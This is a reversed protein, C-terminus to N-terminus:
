APAFNVCRAQRARNRCTLNGYATIMAYRADTVTSAGSTAHASATNETFGSNKFWRDKHGVLTLYKSNIFFVNGAPCDDDYFLPKGKFLLNDFGADASKGHSRRVSPVLLAEYAEFLTQTTFGVDPKDNGKSATNYPTTLAALSLDTATGDADGAIVSNWYASTAGNIGGATAVGVRAPTGGQDMGSILADLGLWAQNATGQVGVGTGDGFLQSNVVDKLTEEAQMIKAELLNLIAAKGNNQAEEIGSIAITGYLQRWDYEAATLGAQPTITLQDYGSYAGAQGSAYILPEVIKVGGELMRTRKKEMLWMSLPRDGFINDTLQKRYNNLTTSLITTFNANSM